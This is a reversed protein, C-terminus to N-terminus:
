QWMQVSAKSPMKYIKPQDQIIVSADTKTILSALCEQKLINTSDQKASPLHVQQPKRLKKFNSILYISLYNQLQSEAPNHAARVSNIPAKNIKFEM